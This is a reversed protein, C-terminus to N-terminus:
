KLKSRNFHKTTAYNFFDQTNNQLKVALSIMKLCNKSSQYSFTNSSSCGVKIHFLFLALLFLQTVNWQQTTPGGHEHSQLIAAITVHNPALSIDCSVWSICRLLFPCNKHEETKRYGLLYWKPCCLACYDYVTIENNGIGQKSM